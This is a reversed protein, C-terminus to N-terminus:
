EPHFLIYCQSLHHTWKHMQSASCLRSRRQRPLYVGLLIPAWIAMYSELYVGQGARFSKISVCFMLVCM